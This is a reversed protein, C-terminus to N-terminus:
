GEKRREKERSDLIITVPGDNVLEVEMEAGFVGTRATLGTEKVGRVFFEYLREAEAPKAAATFDPRRGKRTDACLTFQSVVLIEGGVDKVSLDFKGEENSFIRLNATKELLYGADKESDGEEVGLLLLYGKGTESHKKGGISVCARNVRQIVAKM